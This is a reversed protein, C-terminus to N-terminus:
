ALRAARLPRWSSKPHPSPSIPAITSAWALRMSASATPSCPKRWWTEFRRPRHDPTDPRTLPSTALRTSVLIFRLPWSARSPIAVGSRPLAAAQTPLCAPNVYLRAQPLAALYACSEIPSPMGRQKLAAAVEVALKEDFMSPNKSEDWADSVYDAFSFPRRQGYQRRAPDYAILAGERGISLLDDWFRYGAYGAALDAYAFVGTLSLGKVGYETWAVHDGPSGVERAMSAAIDAGGEQRIWRWHDLGERIFHDIKDVGVTRGALRISDAVFIIRGYVPFLWVQNYARAGYITDRFTLHCREIDPQDDVWKGFRSHPILTLPRLYSAGVRSRLQAAVCSADCGSAGRRNADEIVERIRANIWGDLIGLSEKSLRGRCTFNDAEDARALSPRAVSLATVAILVIARAFAPV